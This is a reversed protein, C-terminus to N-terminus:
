MNMLKSIADTFGAKDKRYDIIKYVSRDEYDSASEADFDAFFKDDNDWDKQQVFGKGLVLGIKGYDGFFYEQLLPIINKYFSVITKDEDKSLFYSHGIAHDKDLLKEIRKNITKLVESAKHGFIEYELEQLEYNPPMEEFNFRRRLATDLAEVSRDATNMTGIIYLNPPVGFKDKSYPLIVELAEDNGLRKDEEILTILEGFIASVNGRNIEDIILVFNQINNTSQSTYNYKAELYDVVGKFYGEWGIFKSEGNIQKQINEKTLTGQKEKNTGTRLTLNDNSNLSISFEKGTPTKLKIQEIESLEKKLHDYATNFDLQNPTLAAQCINKFIGNKINYLVENEFTEPKIGEIFDEYSMSQHFTTFVIQGEAILRAYEAKIQKRDQILNFSPNAIAIAKEITTYTKGTGPPGFLIQNLPIDNLDTGNKMKTTNTNNLFAEVKNIVNSNTVQYVTTRNGQSNKLEPNFVKWDILKQHSFNDNANFYYDDKVIGIGLITEGDQALVVDGIKINSYFNFIEGAKKSLNLNDNKFFGQAKLLTIIENKSSITANDLDGIDSWGIGIKDERKMIEWYSQHDDKTGVRWYKRDSGLRLDLSQYLIDQALIKHNVDEFSTVPINSRLLDILEQDEKIYEDIFDNILELYHVYKEGKKKSKIGLLDCYKQYFSHKYFTYQYPNHYTLFTAMTREDQHHSFKEEREFERYIKLTEEDFYKIRETLPTKEDFLVKFCDRYPETRAYALHKVVGQGIPYILNAFNITKIEENFDAANTNPRGKFQALLNWKYIEEKLGGERIYNKYKRIVEKIPDDNMDIVAFGMKKLYKNTGEGGSYNWVKEGNLKQHAYRMVEKPPYNKGNIVVEWRTPPILSINEKEIKEIAKLVHEKTIDNPKFEM